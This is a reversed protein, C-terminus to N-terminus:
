KLTKLRASLITLGERSFVGYDPDDKIEKVDFKKKLKDFFRKDAKRRKKSVIWVETTGVTSLETLTQLLPDFAAELYVCDAALILNVPEALIEPSIPTGWKLEAVKVFKREAESMNLDVNKQMLDLFLMDTVYVRGEKQTDDHHAEAMMMGALIGVVGTGAGLEVVNLGKLFSKDMSWRYTMYNSLITAAEWTKGGCGGSSDEAINITRHYRTFSFGVETGIRCPEARPSDPEIGFVDNDSDSSSM